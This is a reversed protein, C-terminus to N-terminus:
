RNSIDRVGHSSSVVTGFHLGVGGPKDRMTGISALLKQVKNRIYTPDAYKLM